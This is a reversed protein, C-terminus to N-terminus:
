PAGPGAAPAAAADFSGGLALLLNMRALLRNSQASVLSRRATLVRAETDLVVIQTTLGAAYRRQALDHASTAADLTARVEAIQRSLSANLTLQDSADRVADLVAGNYSATAADLDATAGKYAARLRKADLIPLHIAPGIGYIRSGTEVLQDLGIAQTGILATLSINPYFAAHAATRGAGAADVRERAALVDPRHALLDLPLQDPLPLTADLTLAPRQVQDYRAAGDGVLAALRHVALDRAAEAQMRAARAEPVESEAVKLEIQTDLGAAVRQQTLKLLQERQEQTRVAVDLLEWSRYLDVYAQAVAGALALRAAAFDLKSATLQSRTQRILAAQRGWFDLDWHMNATAQGIWATSGAFPPPIYYNESFRQWTEDGDIAFRPQRAAIEIQNRSEALRVRALAQALSPSDRLADDMLADLQPDGFTKWWDTAIPELTSGTLGLSQSELPTGRPEERQPTVCGALLLAAAICAALRM